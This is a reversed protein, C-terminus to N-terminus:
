IEMTPQHSQSRTQEQCYAALAQAYTVRDFGEPKSLDDLLSLTVNTWGPPMDELCPALLVLKGGQRDVDRVLQSLEELSLRHAQDVILVKKPDIRFADISYTPLNVAARGMQAFLHKVHHGFTPHMIFQLKRHTITPAGTAQELRKTTRRYPSTAIVEYGAKRWARTAARIALTRQDTFRHSVVVVRGPRQTMTRVLMRGDSDLTQGAQQHVLPRNIPMTKRSQAAKLLQSAHFKAEEAYPNRPASYKAISREVEANSLVFSRLSKTHNVRSNIDAQLAQAQRTM